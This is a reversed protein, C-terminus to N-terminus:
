PQHNVVTKQKKKFADKYPKSNGKFKNGDVTHQWYGKCTIM